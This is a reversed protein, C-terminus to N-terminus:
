LKYLHSEEVIAAIFIIILSIGAFIGMGYWLWQISIDWLCDIILVSCAKVCYTAFVKMGVIRGSQQHPMLQVLIAGLTLIDMGM